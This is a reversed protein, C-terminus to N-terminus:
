ADIKSLMDHVCIKCFNLYNGQSYHGQSCSVGSRIFVTPMSGRQSMLQSGKQKERLVGQLRLKIVKRCKMKIGKMVKWQDKMIKHVDSDAEEAKEGEKLESEESGKVDKEASNDDIFKFVVKDVESTDITEWDSDVRLEVTCNVSCAQVNSDSVDNEM